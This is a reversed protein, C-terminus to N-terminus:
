IVCGIVKENAVKDSDENYLGANAYKLTLALGDRVQQILRSLCENFTIM